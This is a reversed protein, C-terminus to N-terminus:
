FQWWFNREGGEQLWGRNQNIEFEEGLDKKKVCWCYVFALWFGVGLGFWWIMVWWCVCGGGWDWWEWGVGGLGDWKEGVVAARGM